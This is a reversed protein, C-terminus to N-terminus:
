AGNIRHEQRTAGPANLALLIHSRGECGALISGWPGSDGAPRLVLSTGFTLQTQM